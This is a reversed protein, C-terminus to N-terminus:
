FVVAGRTQVGACGVRFYLRGMLRGAKVSRSQAASVRAAGRARAWVKMGLTGGAETVLCACVGAGVCTKMGM